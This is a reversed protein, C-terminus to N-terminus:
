QAECPGEAHGLHSLQVTEVKTINIHLLNGSHLPTPRKQDRCSTIGSGEQKWRAEMGSGEQKQGAEKENEEWKWEVEKGSRGVEMGSGEKKRGKWQAQEM